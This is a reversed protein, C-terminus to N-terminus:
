QGSYLSDRRSCPYEYTRKRCPARMFMKSDKLDKNLGSAASTAGTSEVLACCVSTGKLGRRQPEMGEVRESVVMEKFGVAGEPFAFPFFGM